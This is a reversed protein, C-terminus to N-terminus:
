LDKWPLSLKDKNALKNKEGQKSPVFDCRLFRSSSYCTNLLVLIPRNFPNIFQRDRATKRQSYVPSGIGLPDLAEMHPQQHPYCRHTYRAVRELRWWQFMIVTTIYFGTVPPVKVWAEDMISFYVRRCQKEWLAYSHGRAKRKQKRLPSFFCSTGMKAFMKSASWSSHQPKSWNKASVLSM